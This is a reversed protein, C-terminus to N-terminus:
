PKAEPPRAQARARAEDLARQVEPWDSVLVFRGDVLRTFYVREMGQHNDPGFSVVTGPGLTYDRISEIANIFRERTLERGALKLGEVLIRANIYGELGVSNPVDDPFYKAMLQVYEEVGGSLRAADPGEIPPVVQSMVVVRGEAGGLRRALEEAGVFSVTYFIPSFGDEGALQIFRACPDYTGIMVVAEAGSQQIKALGEEVDLTGRVYSGRAVPALGFEKLALETGTLGDFGYADYQYFVAIRSLGLDQVLHRV